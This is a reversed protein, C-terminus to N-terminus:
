TVNKTIRWTTMAQLPLKWLWVAFEPIRLVSILWVKMALWLNWDTKRETPAVRAGLLIKEVKRATLMKLATTKIVIIGCNRLKLIIGPLSRLHRLMPANRIRSDPFKAKNEQLAFNFVNFFYPLTNVMQTILNNFFWFHIMLKVVYSNM